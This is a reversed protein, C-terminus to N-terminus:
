KYRDHFRVWDQPNSPDENRGMPTLDIYNYATNMLDIGRGYCSYTHYIAGSEDKYFVSISERDTTFPDQRRYNFFASEAAVEEATFSAQFDYNFESPGSSVWKFNWGMREKFTEIKDLPARAAALFTIDRQNLHIPIGDFNDAWFSCSSCPEDWEPAFMFHYVILQSRGEFLDSLTNRGSPTDFAYEKDVREWPLERRQRSLQDRLKTFEKEKALFATRAALWEEHSVVRHNKIATAETVSM